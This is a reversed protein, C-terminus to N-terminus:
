RLVARKATDHEFLALAGSIAFSVAAARRYTPTRLFLGVMTAHVADIAGCWRYTAPYPATALVSGEALHRLGLLRVVFRPLESSPVHCRRLGAEPALLLLLGWGCHITGSHWLGRRSRPPSSM